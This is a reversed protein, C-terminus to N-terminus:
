VVSKRDAEHGDPDRLSVDDVCVHLLGSVHIARVRLEGQIADRAKQMVYGALRSAGMGTQLWILVVVIALVVAALVALLAIAIGRGAKRLRTRPGAM